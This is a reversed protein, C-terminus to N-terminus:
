LMRRLAWLGIGVADWADERQGAMIANESPSLLGRIRLHTIAKPKGRNWSVPAVTRSNTFRARCAGVIQHLKAINEKKAQDFGYFGPLEIVLEESSVWAANQIQDIMSEVSKAKLTAAGILNKGAGFFAYGLYRTGPDISIM